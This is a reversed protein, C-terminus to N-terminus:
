ITENLNYEKKIRSIFEENREDEANNLLYKRIELLKIVYYSAEKVSYCKYKSYKKILSCKYLINQNVIFSYDDIRSESRCIPLTICNICPLTEESM